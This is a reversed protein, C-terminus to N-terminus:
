EYEQFIVSSFGNVNFPTGAPVIWEKNDDQNGFVSACYYRYVPNPLNVTITEYQNTNQVLLVTQGPNDPNAVRIASIRGDGVYVSEINHAYCLWRYRNKLNIIKIYFRLLSGGDELQEEVGKGSPPAKVPWVRREDPPAPTGYQNTNSWWMPGRHDADAWVGNADNASSYDVLGIEEGYYIFPTGPSMLYLAAGMKRRADGDVDNGGFNYYSRGKDHNSLFMASVARPNRTKIKREWGAIVDEAWRYGNGELAWTFTGMDCFQFAFFNMGSRYYNAITGEDKWCEGILYVNDNIKHCTRSFWTWLEINKEDVNFGDYGYQMQGLGYYDYPWSTADLRFGDLGASLWFDVVDEFEERLAASDFNLDPMGTWFSGEFWVNPAAQGWQKFYRSSVYRKGWYDYQYEITEQQPPVAGYYFNYYSAYHGPTGARVEKLAEQFWPHQESSHNMVLDIILKIGRDHCKKLLDKFDEMTGFQPDIDKYDKTDYKHYSPSPMIPTLWVGNVHLSHNCVGDQEIAQRHRLTGSDNLYDLKMAIGKLDGIGDGNSDYFSGTFIEYWTGENRGGLSPLPEAPPPTMPCSSFVMTIIVACLIKELM